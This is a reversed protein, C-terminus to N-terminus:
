LLGKETRLIREEVRVDVALGKILAGKWSEIPFGRDRREKELLRDNILEFRDIILFFM